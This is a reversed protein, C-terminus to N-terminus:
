REHAEERDFIFGTMDIGLYHFSKKRKDTHAPKTGSLVIVKVASSIKNRYLEPIPIVGNKVTSTFEYAQMPPTYCVQPFPTLPRRPIAFQQAYGFFCRFEEFFILFIVKNESFVEFIQGLVCFFIL